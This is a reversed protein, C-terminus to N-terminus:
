AKQFVLTVSITDGNIEAFAEGGMKNMLMRCIYLGLGSGDASDSNAGRWFSEFIHPLETDALTCGSNKVSILLCDGDESFSVQIKKGDGYKVANEIINQLAEVARSIDGKLLCDKYNDIEFHIRILSLKEAYYRMINGSLESLYFEGNNVELCLFDERSADIIQSVFGELEDIPLTM